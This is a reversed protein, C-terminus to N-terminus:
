IRRFMYLPQPKDGEFGHTKYFEVADSNDALVWVFGVEHEKMWGYMNDILLTGVGERRYSIRVGIEYLLLEKGDVNM